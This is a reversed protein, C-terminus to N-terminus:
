SVSRKVSERSDFGPAGEAGGIPIAIGILMERTVLDALQAESWGATHPPRLPIVMYRTEASTEWVRIAIEPALDLGLERLVRRPERVVRSRYQPSKYWDPPLGLVPWATCSCQTCVIVNHRDPTDELAVIYEGQLGAYGMEACAATGDSLLRAKFAPDSWARAVVRAGNRPSWEEVATEIVAELLGDPILGKKTLADVVAAARAAPSAVKEDKM